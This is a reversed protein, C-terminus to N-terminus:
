VYKKFLDSKRYRSFSDRSMLLIIEDCAADFTHINVDKNDIIAVKLNNYVVSPINVQHMSDSRIFDEFMQTAKELLFPLDDPNISKYNQCEKWFAINEISFERILHATFSNVGAPDALIDTLQIDNIQSENNANSFLTSLKELTVRHRTKDAVMIVRDSVPRKKSYTSNTDHLNMVARMAAEGAKGM